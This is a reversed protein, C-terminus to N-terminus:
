RLARLGAEAADFGKGLLTTLKSSEDALWQEYAALAVGLLTWAVTQPLLSGPDTGSRRAVFQAIVDRWGTYMLMSYAQLAPVELIMRMRMRHRPTEDVPFDNFTLVAQRLATSTDVTDATEDLLARMVGLHSDFDGWVIANKSSYYRFVTRRAIGAAAAIDDVSVEDFGHQAFLTMAVATIEDRTTSPRRGVRAPQANM